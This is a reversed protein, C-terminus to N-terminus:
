RSPGSGSLSDIVSSVLKQLLGPSLGSGSDTPKINSSVQGIQVEMGGSVKNLEAESLAGFREETKPM